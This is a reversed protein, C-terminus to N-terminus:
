DATRAVLPADGLDRVGVILDLAFWATFTNWSRDVPWQAIVSTFATLHEAMILHCWARLWPEAATLSSYAPILVSSRQWDPNARIRAGAAPEIHDIWALYPEKAQLTLVSRNVSPLITDPALKDSLDPMEFWPEVQRRSYRMKESSM